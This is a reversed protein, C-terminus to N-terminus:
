PRRRGTVGQTKQTRKPKGAGLEVRTGEEQGDKDEEEAIADTKLL